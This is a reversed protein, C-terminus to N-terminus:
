DREGARWVDGANRVDRSVEPMNKAPSPGKDGRPLYGEPMRSATTVGGPHKANVQQVLSDVQARASTKESVIHLSADHM